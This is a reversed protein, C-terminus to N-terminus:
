NRGNRGYYRARSIPRYRANKNKNKSHCKTSMRKRILRIKIKKQKKTGECARRRMKQVANEKNGVNAFKVRKRSDLKLWGQMGKMEVKAAPSNPYRMRCRRIFATFGKLTELVQNKYRGM